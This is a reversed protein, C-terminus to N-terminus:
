IDLYNLYYKCNYAMLFNDTLWLCLGPQNTV